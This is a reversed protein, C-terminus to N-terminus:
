YLLYHARRRSFRAIESQIQRHYENYRLGSDIAKRFSDSGALEDIVYGKTNKRWQIHQDNERFYRIILYSVEFPDFKGGTYYLHVGGCLKGQHTSFSPTFYVPRFRFNKIKLASLNEALIEPNIWPAGFFEFPNSTGRGLSINIGEMLVMVTYNIASRYTPLNPSPPVWPLKTEHFYMDRIYHSLPVVTLDIKKGFEGRYYQAAEGPTMEYFLTAPFSAVHKSYFNNDLYPGSIGIFGIPNPRDLVILKKGTGELADMVLKLSSVYTYCRMGMDQIDYIVMDPVELMTKLSSPTFFHLHYVILNKEEYDEYTHKDYTNREGFPGHEPALIFDIIIGGDRVIDIIHRFNADVSSHNVVLAAHKGKYHSMEHRSFNELGTHVRRSNRIPFYYMPEDSACFQMFLLFICAAPLLSITKKKLVKAAIHTRTHYLQDNAIM